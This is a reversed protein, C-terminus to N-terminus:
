CQYNNKKDLENMLINMDHMNGSFLPYLLSLGLEKDLFVAMRTQMRCKGIKLDYRTYTPIDIENHYRQFASHTYPM